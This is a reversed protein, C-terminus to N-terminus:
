KGVMGFRKGHEQSTKWQYRRWNWAVKCWATNNTALYQDSITLAVLSYCWVICCRVWGFDKWTRNVLMGMVEWIKFLDIPLGIHSNAPDVSPAPQHLDDLDGDTHLLASLRKRALSALLDVLSNSDPGTNAIGIWIWLFCNIRHLIRQITKFQICLSICGRVVSDTWRRSSLNLGDYQASLSIEHWLAPLGSGVEPLCRLM